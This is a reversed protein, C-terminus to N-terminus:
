TAPRGVVVRVCAEDGLAEGRARADDSSRPVTCVFMTTKPARPPAGSAAASTAFARASPTHTLASPGRVIRASV